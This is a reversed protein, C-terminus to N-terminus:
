SLKKITYIGTRTTGGNITITGGWGGSRLKINLFTKGSYTGSNFPFAFDIGRAFGSSLHTAHEGLLTTYVNGSAALYFELVFDGAGSWGSLVSEMVSLEYNTNMESQFVLYNMGNWAVSTGGPAGTTNSGNRSYSSILGSTSSTPRIRNGNSDTIIGSSPSVLGSVASPLYLRATNDSIQGMNISFSNAITSAGTVIIALLISNAPFTPSAANNSVESYTIAGTNDVYVYTDKSATFTRSSVAAVVVRTGNIYVVGATMSALRTSGYADGTWVCGSAVFDYLGENRYLELSNNDDDLTGDALGAFNANVKASEIKTNATFTYM